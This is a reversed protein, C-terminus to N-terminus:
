LLSPVDKVNNDEILVTNCYGHTVRCNSESCDRRRHNNHHGQAESDARIPKLCYECILYGFKERLKEIRATKVKRWIVLEEKARQSMKSLGKTRKIPTGRKLPKRSETRKGGLVTM